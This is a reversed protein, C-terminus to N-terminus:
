LFKYKFYLPRINPIDGKIPCGVRQGMEHFIDKLTDYDNLFLQNCQHIYNCRLCDKMKLNGCKCILFGERNPMTNLGIENGCCLCKM